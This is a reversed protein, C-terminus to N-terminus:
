SLLRDWEDGVSLSGPESASEIIKSAKSAQLDGIAADLLMMNSGEDPGNVKLRWEQVTETTDKPTLHLGINPSLSM